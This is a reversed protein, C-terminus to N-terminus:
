CARGAMPTLSTGGILPEPGTRARGTNSGFGCGSPDVEGWRRAAAANAPTRIFPVLVGRQGVADNTGRTDNNFSYAYDLMLM